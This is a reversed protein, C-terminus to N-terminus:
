GGLKKEVRKFYAQANKQTILPNGTNITKRVREHKIARVAQAVGQQAMGYPDQAITAFMKKALIAQTAELAGDFGVLKIKGTLHRADLSQLAGLAM